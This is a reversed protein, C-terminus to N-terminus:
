KIMGDDERRTKTAISFSLLDRTSIPPKIALSDASADQEDGAGSVSRELKESSINVLGENKIRTQSKYLQYLGCRRKEYIRNDLGVDSYM